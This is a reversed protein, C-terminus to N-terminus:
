GPADEQKRCTINVLYVIVMALMYKKILYIYTSLIHTIVALLTFGIQIILFKLRNTNFNLLLWCLM